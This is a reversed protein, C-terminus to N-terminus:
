SGVQICISLSPSLLLRLECLCVLNTFVYELIVLELLFLHRWELDWTYDTCTIFYIFLYILKVVLLLHVVSFVHRLADSSGELYIGWFFFFKVLQLGFSNSVVCKVSCHPTILHSGVWVVLFTFCYTEWSTGLFLSLFTVGM